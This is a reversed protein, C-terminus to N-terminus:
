DATPKKPGIVYVTYGRKLGFRNAYDNSDFYVDIINGKVASGTDEARRFGLGDIYVWWGLPVVKPDVAITRGETVRTGTSTLGYQPHETSKGTSAVGASYATLTVNNIVQKVGFSVGGKTVEQLNPSSASLVVVPNKTGVAVIKNVSESQVKQDVVEESVLKGDEYMKEKKKVVLGEQGEQVVQEKGKVLQPDNKKVVDYAIKEQVEEVEKTVRVIQIEGSDPLDADVVPTVKDLEGVQVQLDNLAGGVTKQVTYLTKTEGDATLQIPRAHEITIRDGSKVKSDLAASLRDHEGVTVGQEDLLHKLDWQKTYVVTEEGNVVVTVKKTATGYLMLLFMFTLAFSILAIISILRLNEHRWRLAFSMSSSRRVHTQEHQIAGM